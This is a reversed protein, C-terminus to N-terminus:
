SLSNGLSVWVHDCQITERERWRVVEWPSQRDDVLLTILRIRQLYHQLIIKRVESMPASSPLMKMKPIKRQSVNAVCSRFLLERYASQDDDRLLIQHPTIETRELTPTPISLIYDFLTFLQPYYVQLITRSLPVRGSRSPESSTSSDKIEQGNSSDGTGKVHNMEFSGQECSFQFKSSFSLLFAEESESESDERRASVFVIVHDM